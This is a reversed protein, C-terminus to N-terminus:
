HGLISFTVARPVWMLTFGLDRKSVQADRHCTLLHDKNIKWKGNVQNVVLKSDMFITVDRWLNMQYKNTRNYELRAVESITSLLAYYESENNTVYRNTATLKSAIQTEFGDYYAISCYSGIVRKIWPGKGDAITLGGDTVIWRQLGLGM